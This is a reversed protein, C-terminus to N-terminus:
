ECLETTVHHAGFIIESDIKTNKKLKNKLDDRRLDSLLATKGSDGSQMVTLRLPVTKRVKEGDHQRFTVSFADHRHLFEHALPPWLCIVHGQQQAFSVLLSTVNDDLNSVFNLGHAIGKHLRAQLNQQISFKWYVHNDWVNQIKFNDEHKM